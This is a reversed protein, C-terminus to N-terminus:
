HVPRTRAAGPLQDTVGCRPWRPAVPPIAHTLWRRAPAPPGAVMSLDVRSTDLAHGASRGSGSTASLQRSMMAVVHGDPGFRGVEVYGRGEHFRLSPVNPPDVNVELVMRGHPAALGELEDYVVRAAGSRRFGPAVVVRDLYYFDSGFREAHWRYNDSDYSSGPGVTVVFGGFAGDVDIVDVRHALQQLLTLREDDLPSLLEVHDANIRLVQERDAPGIPRLTVAM